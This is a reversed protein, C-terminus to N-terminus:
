DPAEEDTIDAIDVEAPISPMEPPHYPRGNSTLAGSAKLFNATALLRMVVNATGTETPSTSAFTTTRTSDM